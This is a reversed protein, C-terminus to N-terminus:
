PNGLRALEARSRVTNTKRRALMMRANLKVLSVNWNDRVTRGKGVLIILYRCREGARLLRVGHLLTSDITVGDYLPVAVSKATNTVLGSAAGLRTLTRRVNSVEEPSQVYVATDDAYGCVKIKITESQNAIRVGRFTSSLLELLPEVPMIFLFPAQLCGQHIGCVVDLPDSFFGYVIFHSRTGMHLMAVLRVFSAPFGLRKM